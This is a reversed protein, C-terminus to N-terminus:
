GKPAFLRKVPALVDTVFVEIGLREIVRKESELTWGCVIAKKLPLTVEFQEKLMAEYVQLEGVASPRARDKVELIYLRDRAMWLADIRKASLVKFIEHEEPSVEPHKPVEVELRVDFAFLGRPKFKDLFATFIKTELPKMHPFKFRMRRVQEDTLWKLSLLKRKAMRKKYESKKYLRM